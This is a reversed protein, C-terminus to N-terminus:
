AAESETYRWSRPISAIWQKRQQGQECLSCPEAWHGYIVGDYTRARSTALGTDDCAECSGTGSVNEIKATM